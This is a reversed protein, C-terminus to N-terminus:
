TGAGAPSPDFTLRKAKAGEGGFNGFDGRANQIQLTSNPHVTGLPPLPRLQRMAGMPTPTPPITQGGEGKHTGKQLHM